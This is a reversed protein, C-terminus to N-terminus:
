TLGQYIRWYAEKSCMRVNYADDEEGLRDWKISSRDHVEDEIDRFREHRPQCLGDMETETKGEEEGLRYRRHAYPLGAM